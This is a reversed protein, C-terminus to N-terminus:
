LVDKLDLNITIMEPEMSRKIVKKAIYGVALMALPLFKMYNKM